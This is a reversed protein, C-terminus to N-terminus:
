GNRQSFLSTYKNVTCVKVQPESAILLLFLFFLSTILLFSSLFSFRQELSSTVFFLCLNYLIGFFSRHCRGGSVSCNYSFSLSPTHHNRLWVKSQSHRVCYKIHSMRQQASSYNPTMRYSVINGGITSRLSIFSFTEKWNRGQCREKWNQTRAM